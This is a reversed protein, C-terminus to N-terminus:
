PASRFALDKSALIFDFSCIKLTLMDNDNHAATTMPCAEVNAEAAGSMVVDGEAAGSAVVNAEAVGSVVVNAPPLM